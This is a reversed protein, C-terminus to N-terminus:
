PRHRQTRRRAGGSQGVRTPAARGSGAGRGAPRTGPQDAGGTGVLLPLGVDALLGFVMATVGQSAHGSRGFGAIVALVGAAWWATRPRRARMTLELLGWSAGVQNITTDDLVVIAVTLLVTQATLNVLPRRHSVLAVTFATVALTWQAGTPPQGAEVTFLLYGLGSLDLLIMRVLTDRADFLRGVWGM